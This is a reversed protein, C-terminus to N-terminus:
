VDVGAHFFTVGDAIVMVPYVDVCVFVTVVVRQMEANYLYPVSVQIPVSVADRAPANQM